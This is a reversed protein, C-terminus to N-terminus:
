PSQINTVFLCIYSNALCICRRHIMTRMTLPTHAIKINGNLAARHDHFSSIIMELQGGPLMIQFKM